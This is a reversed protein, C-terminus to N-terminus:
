SLFYREFFEQESYSEFHGGATYVLYNGVPVAVSRRGERFVISGDLCAKIDIEPIKDEIFSTLEEASEVTGIYRITYALQVPFEDRRRYCFYKM